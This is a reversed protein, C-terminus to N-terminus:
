RRSRGSSSSRVAGASCRPDAREGGHRVTSSRARRGPGARDPWRPRPSWGRAASRSAASSASCSCRFSLRGSAPPRSGPEGDPAAREGSRRGTGAAAGPDAQGGRRHRRCRRRGGRGGRRGSGGGPHKRGGLHRVAADSLGLPGAAPAAAGDRHDRVPHGDRDRRRRRGRGCRRHGGDGRHGLRRLHRLRHRDAPRAGCRAEGPQGALDHGAAHDGPHGGDPRHDGGRARRDCRLLGLVRAPRDRDAAAAQHGPQAGAEGGRAAPRHQRRGDRPGGGLDPRRHRAPAPPRADRGRPGRCGRGAGALACTRAGDTSGGRGRCHAAGSVTM